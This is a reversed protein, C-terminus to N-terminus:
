RGGGPPLEQWKSHLLIVESCEVPPYDRVTISDPSCKPKTPPFQGPFIGELRRYPRNKKVRASLLEVM